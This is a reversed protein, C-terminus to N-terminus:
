KYFFLFLLMFMSLDTAIFLMILFFTSFVFNRPTIISEFDVQDVWIEDM